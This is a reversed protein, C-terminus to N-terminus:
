KKEGPPKKPQRSYFTLSLGNGEVLLAPISEQRGDVFEVWTAEEVTFGAEAPFQRRLEERLASQDKSM